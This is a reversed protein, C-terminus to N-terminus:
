KAVPGCCLAVPPLHVRSSSMDMKLQSMEPTKTSSLLTKDPFLTFQLCLQVLVISVVCVVGLTLQSGPLDIASEDELADDLYIIIMIITLM